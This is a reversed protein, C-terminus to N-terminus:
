LQSSHNANKEDIQAIIKTAWGGTALPRMVVNERISTRFTSGLRVSTSLSTNAM